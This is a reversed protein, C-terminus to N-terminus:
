SFPVVEAGLHQRLCTLSVELESRLETLDVAHTELSPGRLGVACELIWPGRFGIAQFARWYAPLDIGGRGLGRRGRDALQVAGLRGACHGIAAGIEEGVADMHFTDLVIRLRPSGVAECLRVADAATHIQSV